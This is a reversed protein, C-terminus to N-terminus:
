LHSHLCAEGSIDRFSQSLSMGQSRPPADPVPSAPSPVNSREHSARMNNPLSAMSGWRPVPQRIEERSPRTSANESMPAKDSVRSAARPVFIPAIPIPTRALPSFCKVSAAKAPSDISRLSQKSTSSRLPPLATVYSHATAEFGPSMPSATSIPSQTRVSIPTRPSM